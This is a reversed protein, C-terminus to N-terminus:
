EEDESDSDPNLEEYTKLRIRLRYSPDGINKKEIKMENLRSAFVNEAMDEIPYRKKFNTYLDRSKIKMKGYNQKTLETKDEETFQDDKYVCYADVYQFVVNCSKVFEKAAKLVEDPAPLNTKGKLHCINEWNSILIKMLAQNYRVDDVLLVDLGDILQKEEPKSPDPTDMFKYPFDIIRLRRQIADDTQSLKPIDNCAINIRFQPKFSAPQSFLGRTKLTSNGSFEKMRSTILKDDDNPEECYIYRKGKADYMESTENASKSAKTFTTANVKSTYNGFAKAIFAQLLSKGNRGEGTYIYFEQFPKGYLMSTLCNIVYKRVDDTAFFSDLLNQVEDVINEDVDPDYDYGTTISIYDTPEIKRIVNQEIDFVCNNFAFLNINCDLKTELFDDVQFLAPLQDRINKVYSTTKLNQAIKLCVKCYTDYVVKRMEDANESLKTYHSAREIFLRCIESGCLNTIFKDDKQKWVNREDVVFYTKKDYVIEDKKYQAIVKAVDFHTGEGRLAIDIYASISDEIIKKYKDPNDLKAWYKLTGLGMNEKKMKGWIKDCEGAKYTSGHQSFEDWIHLYDENINYLAFGLNIWDNYNESREKNLCSVLKSILGNQEKSEPLKSTLISIVNPEKRAKKPKAVTKFHAFKVDYDEFSEKIYSPCYKTIDVNQDNQMPLLPPVKGDQKQNSYIPFLGGNSMYPKFDFPEDNKYGKSEMLNKLTMYSIRINDVVLHYSYKTCIKGKHMCERAERYTYYIDDTNSLELIDKIKNKIDCIESEEDYTVGEHKKTDVDFAPKSQQNELGIIECPCELEKLTKKYDKTSTMYLPRHKGGEVLPDNLQYLIITEYMQATKPTDMSKVNMNKNM